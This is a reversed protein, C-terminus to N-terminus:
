GLAGVFAPDVKFFLHNVYQRKIEDSV